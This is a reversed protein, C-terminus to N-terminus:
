CLDSEFDIFRICWVPPSDNRQVNIIQNGSYGLVYIKIMFNDRCIEIM